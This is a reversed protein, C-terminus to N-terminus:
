FPPAYATLKVIDQNHEIGMLFMAEALAGRLTASDEGTNVAYEGVFIDPGKRDYGDYMHINEMFFHSTNYFHEDAIETSLGDKETHTNSIYKISPYRKKLADYFYQYRKNYEPGYNENGIEIYSMKFPAPHGAAARKRGMPTDTAGIAYEIADFAERLFDDIEESEFLEMARGQCTMGCNIVYMPELDLDECIQLYEHFGLGNTTRYHWMLMHSPREWVPGITNSFRMATEKTFGEVICGGPFRLFKANIGDLIEMLDCRMGHGKYTDAPMLSTFGICLESAELSTITLYGKTADKPAVFGCDYRGYAGPNVVLDKKDLITGDDAHISITVPAARDAAKAFMYFSYKAGTKFAMGQYGINKLSGGPSLFVRLSVLRKDNLTDGADLRMDADQTYWAPIATPPFGKMWRALGEGGNFQDSWGLPTTFKVGGQSVTCRKPPISDEFSRNRLMEPYLGGDVSRNIDEFFLGYLDPAVPFRVQKTKVSLKSM